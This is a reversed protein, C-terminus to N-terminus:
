YGIVEQTEDEFIEVYVEGGEYWCDTGSEIDALVKNRTLKLTNGLTLTIEPSSITFKTKDENLVLSPNKVLTNYLNINARFVKKYLKGNEIMHVHVNVQLIGPGMTLMPSAARVIGTGYFSGKVTVNSKASSTSPTCTPYYLVKGTKTIDVAGTFPYIVSCVGSMEAHVSDIMIGEEKPAITFIVNVKQNLIKPTIKCDLAKKNEKDVNLKAVGAYMPKEECILFGSYPNSDIWNTYRSLLPSDTIKSVIPYSMYVSDKSSAPDFFPEANGEKYLNFATIEYEGARLKATKGSIGEFEEAPLVLRCGNGTAKAGTVYRYEYRNVVRYAIVYMSDPIPSNNRWDYQFQVVSRHPHENKELEVDVNCSSCLALVSCMIFLIYISNRM